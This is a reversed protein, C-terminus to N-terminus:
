QFKFSLACNTGAGNNQTISYQQTKGAVNGNDYCTTGSGATASTDSAGIWVPNASAGAQGYQATVTGSQPMGDDIKGDIASAQWVSLTAVPVIGGIMSLSSLGSLGFYNTFNQGSYAGGGYVYIYNGGGLIAPPTYASIAPSTSQTVTASPFGAAMATTFSEAIMNARTLDVWFLGIEGTTICVDCFAGATGNYTGEIYGNGDGQGVYAGRATFGFQAATAADMDGPLTGYKGRFTNIATKYKEIQTVQARVGAARVLDRGVLVGGIILGIIVLVISLEILTFFRPHSNRKAYFANYRGPIL